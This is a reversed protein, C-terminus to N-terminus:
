THCFRSYVSDDEYFPEHVLLFRDESSITVGLEYPIEILAEFSNPPSGLIERRLRNASSKMKISQPFRAAEHDGIIRRLHLMADSAAKLIKVSRLSVSEFVYVKAQQSLCYKPQTELVHRFITWTKGTM